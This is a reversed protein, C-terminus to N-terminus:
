EKKRDIATSLGWDAIKLNFLSDIFVNEPKLDRHSVGQEHVHKIGNMLEKFFYRSFHECFENSANIFDLLEGGQALELIVYNVELPKKGAKEYKKVGVELPTLM